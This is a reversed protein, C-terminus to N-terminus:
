LKLSVSEYYKSRGRGQRKGRKGANPNVYEGLGYFADRRKKGIRSDRRSEKGEPIIVLWDQVSKIWMFHQLSIVASFECLTRDEKSYNCMHLTRLLGWAPISLGFLCLSIIIGGTFAWVTLAANLMKGRTPYRETPVGLWKTLLPKESDLFSIITQLNSDLQACATQIAQSILELHVNEYAISDYAHEVESILAMQDSWAMRMDKTKKSIGGFAQERKVMEKIKKSISEFLEGERQTMRRGGPRGIKEITSFWVVYDQQWKQANGLLCCTQCCFRM